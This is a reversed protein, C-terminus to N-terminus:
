VNWHSQNQNPLMGFQSSSSSTPPMFAAAQSLDLTSFSQGLFPNPHHYQQQQHHQSSQPGWNRSHQPLNLEYAAAAAAGQVGRMIPISIRENNMTDTYTAICALQSPNLNLPTSNNSSSNEHELDTEKDENESNHREHPPPIGSEAGNGKNVRRNRKVVKPREAGDSFCHYTTHQQLNKVARFAKGCKHCLYTKTPFHTQEHNKLKHGMNFSKSCIKCKYPAVGTHTM